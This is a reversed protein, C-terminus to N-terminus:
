DDLLESMLDDHNELIYIFCGKHFIAKKVKDPKEIKVKDVRSGIQERCYSCDRNRSDIFKWNIDKM